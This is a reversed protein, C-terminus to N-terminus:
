NNHFINNIWIGDVPFSYVEGDIIFFDGDEFQIFDGEKIRPGFEINLDMKAITSKCQIVAVVGDIKKVIGRLSISTKKM